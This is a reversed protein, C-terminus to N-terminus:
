AIICNMCPNYKVISRSDASINNRECYSKAADSSEFCLAASCVQRDPYERVIPYIRDYCSHRDLLIRGVYHRKGVLIIYQDKIKM